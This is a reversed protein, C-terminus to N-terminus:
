HRPQWTPGSSDASKDGEAYGQAVQTPGSKGKEFPIVFIGEEFSDIAIARGDPSWAPHEGGIHSTDLHRLGRGDAGVVYALSGTRGTRSFVLKTAHPSWDPHAGGRYTLRRLNRRNATVTYVDRGRRFAIRGRSSWAPDSGGRQTFRALHGGQPDVTYLDATAQPGTGRHGTFIIRSGGPSWAPQTDSDTLRPLRRLASGDANMVALVGGSDFAIRKGDASYAPSLYAIACDGQDPQGDVQSCGALARAPGQGFVDYIGRRDSSPGDRADHRTFTYAIRGNRGAFAGQAPASFM